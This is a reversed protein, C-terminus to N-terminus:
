DLKKTSIYIKRQKDKPIRLTTMGTTFQISIDLEVIMENINSNKHFLLRGHSAAKFFRILHDHYGYKYKSLSKMFHYSDKM